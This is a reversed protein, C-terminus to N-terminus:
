ILAKEYSQRKKQLVNFTENEKKRQFGKGLPIIHINEKSYELKIKCEIDRIIFPQSKKAERHAEKISIM